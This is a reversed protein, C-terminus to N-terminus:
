EDPLGPYLIRLGRSINTPAVSIHTEGEILDASAGAPCDGHVAGDTTSEIAEILSCSGDQSPYDPGGYRCHHDRGM